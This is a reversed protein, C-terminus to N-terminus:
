KKDKNDNKDKSEKEAEIEGQLFEIEGQCKIFYEKAQEMEIKKEEFFKKAQEQQEKLGEIKENLDSM